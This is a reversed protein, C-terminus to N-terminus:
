NTRCVMEVDDDINIDIGFPFYERLVKHPTQDIADNVINRLIQRRVSLTSRVPM